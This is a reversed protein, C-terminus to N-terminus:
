RIKKLVKKEPIGKLDFGRLGYYKEMNFGSPKRKFDSSVPIFGDMSNLYKELVFSREGAKLFKGFSMKVGTFHFFLKPYVKFEDFLSLFSPCSKVFFKVLDELDGVKLLANGASTYFSSDLGILGVAERFDEILKVLRPNEGRNQFSIWSALNNLTKNRSLKVQENNGRGLSSLMSEMTICKRESDYKSSLYKTGLGAEAGKGRCYAIDNLLEEIGCCSGHSLCSEYIGISSAEKIWAISSYASVRDMGKKFCVDDSIEAKKRDLIGFVSDLFELTSFNKLSNEVPENIYFSNEYLDILSGYGKEDYPIVEVDRGAVAIGKLNKAGFVAGMGMNGFSYKGCTLNSYSVGNEGAPGIVISSDNINKCLKEHSTVVDMGWMSEANEFYAGDKDIKLVTHRSARGKIILAGFGISSLKKGFDGQGTCSEFVGKVPTKTIVHYDNCGIISCNNFIGPVVAFINDNCFPDSGPRIRDHILKLGLGKGGLYKVRLEKSINGIKFKKLSLDVEIVRNSAGRILDTM